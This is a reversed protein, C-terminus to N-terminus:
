LVLAWVVLAAAIVANLATGLWTLWPYRGRNNLPASRWRPITRVVAYGCLGVGVAWLVPPVTQWLGVPAALAPMAVAWVGNSVLRLRDIGAQRAAGLLGLGGGFTMFATAVLRLAVQFDFGGGGPETGLLRRGLDDVSRDTNGLVVVGLGAARDFGAYARFGGTGGNHWTIERGGSQDTFWGYGIREDEGADFRPTAADAGPATGAMTASVLKAVDTATSWAGGAPAYGTASWPDVPRGGATFGQPAGEPPTFGTAAMGLPALIRREVLEPYPVGARQALAHGLVSVGYNSYSVEQEGGGASAGGVTSLLWETDASGYPDNGGLTNLVVGAAQVPGTFRIRPLGSRHSALEALTADATDPDEFDVTPLLDALRQDARVTGDRVLDALLMGTLTKGISGIEFPTEAGVAGGRGDDGLGATRVQGGEVTAVALGRYGTPDDVLARVRAALEADGTTETGLEAARPGVLWAFAAVLVAALVAWRDLRPARM